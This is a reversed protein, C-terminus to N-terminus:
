KTYCRLGIYGVRDLMPRPNRAYLLYPQDARSARRPVPAMASLRLPYGKGTASVGCTEVHFARM